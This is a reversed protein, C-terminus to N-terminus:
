TLSLTIQLKTGQGPVSEIKFGDSNRKINPLGMGAGFGRERMAETATSWGEQMAKGIDPIGQGEDEIRIVLEEPYLELTMLGGRAYLVVNMEAEYSCIATRRIVQPSVEVEKLIDKIATSAHGANIFDSGLIKYSQTLLPVRAPEAKESM